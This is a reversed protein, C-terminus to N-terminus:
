WWMAVSVMLANDHIRTLPEAETNHAQVDLGNRGPYLYRAYKITIEEHTVFATKIRLQPSIIHYTMDRDATTGDALTWEKDADDLDPNVQDYRCALSLWPLATYILETGWKFRKEPLNFEIVTGDDLTYSENNSIINLMGFFGLQFDPGKGNFTKGQLGWLLRSLSLMYQFAFTDIKGNGRMEEQPGYYNEIFEYGQISHLVELGESLRRLEKSKLHSYGLYLDGFIAGNFKIDGGMTMLNADREDDDPDANHLTSPDADATFSQMFHMAAVMENLIPVDYLFLAAHAHNVMTTGQEYDGGWPMWPAPEGNLGDFWSWRPLVDAKAGFGHEVQLVLKEGLDFTATLTEGAVHTRGFIYTDYRGADYRGMAGYRNQFIGVDWKIGGIRGFADPFKVQVWAQDLGLNQNINRYSGDTINFTSATVTGVAISNGFSLMIDAYPVPLNGTYEWTNRTADPVQPPSKFRWDEGIKNTAGTAPDQETIWEKGFSFRMPARLFGHFGFGWDETSTRETKPPQAQASSTIDSAKALAPDIGISVAQHMKEGRDSDEARTLSPMTSLLLAALGCIFGTQWTTLVRHIM